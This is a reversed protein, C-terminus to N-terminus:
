ITIIYSPFPHYFSIISLNKVDRKFLVEKAVLNVHTLNGSLRMGISRLLILFYRYVAFWYLFCFFGLYFNFFGRLSTRDADAVDGASGSGCYIRTRVDKAERADLLPRGFARIRTRVAVLFKHHDRLPLPFFRHLDLIAVFSINVRCLEPRNILERLIISLEDM